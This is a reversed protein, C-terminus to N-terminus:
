RAAEVLGRYLAQNGADALREPHWQVGLVFAPGTGEIAEVLGDSTRGSVVLGAGLRRVAQHHTSNAPLSVTGCLRHLRTGPTVVVDHAPERPDHPQEHALAEPLESAIDQVLSGGLVVNLLQMGGCVALVPLGRELALEMLRREFRARGPNVPGMRGRGTEGYEEPAVDFAGGTVVLGRVCALYARLVAEDVAYPFVLPLGGADLVADAYSRRLEYRPGAPRGPRATTSGEDPTVGITPRM